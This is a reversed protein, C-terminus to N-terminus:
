LFKLLWSNWILNGASLLTLRYQLIVSLNEIPHKFSPRQNASEVLSTNRDILKHLSHDCKFEICFETKAHFPVVHAAVVFKVNEGTWNFIIARGIPYSSKTTGLCVHSPCLGEVSCALKTINSSNQRHPINWIFCVGVFDDDTNVEILSRNLFFDQWWCKTMVILTTLM